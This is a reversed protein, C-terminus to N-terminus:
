VDLDVDESAPHKSRGKNGRRTKKKAVQTVSDTVCEIVPEVNEDM